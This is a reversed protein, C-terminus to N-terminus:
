FSVRRLGENEPNTRQLLEEITLDAVPHMLYKDIDALPALAFARKALHPHPITLGPEEVVRDGWLLIDIDIVRPGWRLTETERLRGLSRELAQTERLFDQPELRTELLCATNYYDQQGAPGGVPKTEYVPAKTLLSSGTLNALGRCAAAINAGRDGMNSGLGVYVMAM